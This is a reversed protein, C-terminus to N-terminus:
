DQQTNKVSYETRSFNEEVQRDLKPVAISGLAVDAKGTENYASSM